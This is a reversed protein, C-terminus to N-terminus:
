LHAQVKARLVDGVVLADRITSDGPLCRIDWKGNQKAGLTQQVEAHTLVSKRSVKIDYKKCLQAVLACTADVQPMTIPADGWELPVPEANAMGCMSVGISGTNMGKTHQAYPKGAIISVNAEPPLEGTVVRLDQQVLFHYHEKDIVSASKGGATWHIIVRVLGFNM